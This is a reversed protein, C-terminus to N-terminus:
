WMFSIWAHPPMGSEAPTGSKHCDGCLLGGGMRNRHQRTRTSVVAWPPFQRSEPPNHSELDIQVNHTLLPVHPFPHHYVIGSTMTLVCNRNRYASNDWSSADIKKFELGLM